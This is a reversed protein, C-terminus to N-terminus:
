WPLHGLASMGGATSVARHLHSLAATLTAKVQCLLQAAFAGSPLAWCMAGAPSTSIGSSYPGTPVLGMGAPLSPGWEGEQCQAPFSLLPQPLLVM